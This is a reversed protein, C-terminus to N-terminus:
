SAKESAKAKNSRRYELRYTDYEDLVDTINAKVEEGSRNRFYYIPYASVAMLKLEKEIVYWAIAKMVKAKVSGDANRAPVTM